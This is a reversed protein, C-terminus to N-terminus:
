PQMACVCRLVKYQVEYRPCVYVRVCVGPIIDLPSLLYVLGLVPGAWAWFSSRVQLVCYAHLSIHLGHNGVSYCHLV